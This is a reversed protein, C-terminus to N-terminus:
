QSDHNAYWRRETVTIEKSHTTISLKLTITLELLSTRKKNKQINPVESKPNAINMWLKKELSLIAAIVPVRTYKPVLKTLMRM